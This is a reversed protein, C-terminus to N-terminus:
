LVVFKWWRKEKATQLMLVYTGVAWGGIDLRMKGVGVSGGHWVERGVADIVKLLTTGTGDLILWLEDRAPNPYLRGEPISQDAVGNALPCGLPDLSVCVGDILTYAVYQGLLTDPDLDYLVTQANDFQNGIILYRYASDAVFSGSVLTWGATDSVVDLSRVQASNRLPFPTTSDMCENLEMTFLMGINNTAYVPWICDGNGGFAANAHFSAYYTQGVVLPGILEVSIMERAGIVDDYTAMGTYALGDWPYQFTICNLPVSTMTDKCVHFYDPTPSACFWYKPRAGPAFNFMAPWAACSDLEEFGPNPVLNQAHALQPAVVLLCGLLLSVGASPRKSTM